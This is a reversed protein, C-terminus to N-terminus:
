IKQSLKVNGLQEVSNVPPDIVIVDNMQHRTIDYGYGRLIDIPTKKNVPSDFVGPEIADMPDNSPSNDRGHDIEENAIPLADHKIHSTLPEGVEDVFGPARNDRAKADEGKVPSEPMKSTLVEAGLYNMPDEGMPSEEPQQVEKTSVPPVAVVESVGSIYDKGKQYKNVLSSDTAEIPILPIIKKEEFQTKKVNTTKSKELLDKPMKDTIVKPDVSDLPDNEDESAQASQKDLNQEESVKSEGREIATVPQNKPSDDAEFKDTLGPNVHDLPDEELTQGKIIVPAAPPAIAKNDELQTAEKKQITKQKKTLPEDEMERDVVTSEVINMKGKNTKLTKGKDLVADDKKEEEWQDKITAARRAEPSDAPIKNLLVERQIHDIPDVNSDEDKDSNADQDRIPLALNEAVNLEGTDKYLKAYPKNSSIKTHPGDNIMKSDLVEPQVADLPEEHDSRAGRADDSERRALAKDDDYEEGYNEVRSMVKKEETEPARDDDQNNFASPELQRQPSKDDITKQSIVGAVIAGDLNKEDEDEKVDPVKSQGVSGGTNYQELKRKNLSDPEIASM